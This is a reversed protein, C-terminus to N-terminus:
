IKPPLGALKRVEAETGYEQQAARMSLKALEQDAAPRDQLVKKFGETLSLATTNMKALQLKLWKVGLIAAGALLGLAIIGLFMGLARMFPNFFRLYALILGIAGASGVSAGIGGLVFMKGLKGLMFAAVIGGIFIFPMPVLLGKLWNAGAEKLLIKLEAITAKLEIVEASDDSELQGPEPKPKPGWPCGVLGAVMVVVLLAVM